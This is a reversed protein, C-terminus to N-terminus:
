IRLLKATAFWQLYKKQIQNEQDAILEITPYLAVIRIKPDLLGLLYAALSKGGGTASKNFIIIDTQSSLLHEYTQAQHSYLPCTQGKLPSAETQQEVVSCVRDCGLPCNGVGANLQSYLPSLYLEM